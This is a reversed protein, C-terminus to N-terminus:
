ALPPPPGAGAFDDGAPGAPERDPVALVPLEDTSAERPAPPRSWRRRAGRAHGHCVDMQSRAQRGIRRVGARLRRPVRRSLWGPLRHHRYWYWALLCGGALLAPSVCITAVISTVVLYLVVGVLLDHRAAVSILSLWFIARAIRKVKPAGRLAFNGKPM